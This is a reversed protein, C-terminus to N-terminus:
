AVRSPRVGACEPRPSATAAPRRGAARRGWGLLSEPADTPGCRLPGPLASGDRPRLSSTLIRRLAGSACTSASASRTPTCAAGSAKCAALRARRRRTPARRSDRGPRRAPRTARLPAPFRRIRPRLRGLRPSCARCEPRSRAGRRREAATGRWASSSKGRGTRPKPRARPRCEAPWRPASAYRSRAADASGSGRWRRPWSPRQVM